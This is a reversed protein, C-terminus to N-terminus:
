RAPLRRRSVRRRPLGATSVAAMSAAAMSVVATIAGAMVAATIARAGTSGALRWVAMAMDAMGGGYYGGDTTPRGGYYPAGYYGRCLVACRLRRPYVGTADCGALTVALAAVVASLLVRSRVM